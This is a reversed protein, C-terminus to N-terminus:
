QALLELIQAHERLFEELAEHTSLPQRPPAEKLFRIFAAVADQEAPSLTPILNILDVSSASAM